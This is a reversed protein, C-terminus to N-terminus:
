VWPDKPPTIEFPYGPQSEIDMLAERYKQLRTIQPAAEASKMTRLGSEWAMAQALKQMRTRNIANVRAARIAKDTLVYDESVAGGKGSMLMAWIARGTPDTDYETATYRAWSAGSIRVECDIANKRSHVWRPTRVGLVEKTKNM